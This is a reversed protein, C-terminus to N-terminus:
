REHEGTKAKGNKWCEDEEETNSIAKISLKVIKIYKIPMHMYVLQSHNSASSHPMLVTVYKDFIVEMYALEDQLIHM